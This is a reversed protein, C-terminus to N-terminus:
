LDKSPLPTCKPNLGPELNSVENMATPAGITIRPIPHSVTSNASGIHAHYKSYLQGSTTNTDSAPKAGTLM